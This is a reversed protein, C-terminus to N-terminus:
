DKVCRILCETTYETDKLEPLASNSLSFAIPKSTTNNYSTTWYAVASKDAAPLFLYDSPRSAAQAADATGFWQGNVGNYNTVWVNPLSTLATFDKKTPSVWTGKPELRACPDDQVIWAGTANGGTNTLTNWQMMTGLVTTKTTFNYNQYATNYQLNSCAWKVGGLDIYDKGNTDLEPEGTTDWERWWDIINVGVLNITTRRIDFVLQHIKGAEFKPLLSTPVTIKMMLGDVIFNFTTGVADLTCPILLASTPASNGALPLIFPDSPNYENSRGPVWTIKKKTLIVYSGKTIDLTATSPLEPNEISVSTLVKSNEEYDSNRLKIEVLSMAHRMEFQVSPNGGNISRNSAYCLDEPVPMINGSADKNWYKLSVLPIATKNNYDKNYPYYACVEANKAMLFVTQDPTNPNFIGVERIATYQKNDQTGSYGTGQSRFIGISGFTLTSTSRSLSQEQPIKLTTSSIKLAILREAASNKEDGSPLNDFQSCAVFLLASCIELSVM